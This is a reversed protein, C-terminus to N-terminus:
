FFFDSEMKSQCKERKTFSVQGWKKRQFFFWIKLIFFSVVKWKQNVNERKTLSVQGWKITSFFILNKLPFWKGNQGKKTTEM